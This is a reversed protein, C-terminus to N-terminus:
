APRADHERDHDGTATSVVSQAAGAADSTADGIGCAALTLATALAAIASTIRNRKM